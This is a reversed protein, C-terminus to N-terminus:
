FGRCQYPYAARLCFFQLIERGEVQLGGEELEEGEEGAALGLIRFGIKSM